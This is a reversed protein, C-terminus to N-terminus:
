RRLGRGTATWGNLPLMSTSRARAREQGLAARRRARADEDGDGVVGAAALRDREVVQAADPRDAVAVAHREEEVGAPEGLVGPEDLSRSAPCASRAIGSMTRSIATARRRCSWSRWSPRGRWCRRSAPAAVVVVQGLPAAVQEDQGLAERGVAAEGAAVELRDGLAQALDDVLVVQAVPDARGGVEALREVRGADRDDLRDAAVRDVEIRPRQQGVDRREVVRALRQRDREVALAADAAALDAGDHEAAM